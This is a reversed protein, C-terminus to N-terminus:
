VRDRMAESDEVMNEFEFVLDFYGDTQDKLLNCNGHAPNTSEVKRGTTLAISSLVIIALYLQNNM